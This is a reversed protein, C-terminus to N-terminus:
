RGYLVELSKRLLQTARARNPYFHPERRLGWRAVVLTQRRCYKRIGDPGHRSGIGSAKWGGMPLDLIGYHSIADNISVTGAELRRALEEAHDLDRGFVCAALGYQSDNALSLAEEADAVSMIPLLPGFTEETMCRMSHDVESLVTPEVFQGHRGGGTLARAGKRVADAIQEHALDAQQETTM